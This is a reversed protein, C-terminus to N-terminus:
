EVHGKVSKTFVENWTMPGVVGDITLGKAQQFKKVANSTNLGFIGDIQGDQLYSLDQLRRQLQLVDEGRMFPLQYKLARTYAM